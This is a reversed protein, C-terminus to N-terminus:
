RPPHIIRPNCHPASFAIRSVLEFMYKCARFGRCRPRLLRLDLVSSAFCLPATLNCSRTRIKVKAGPGSALPSCAFFHNLCKSIEYQLCCLVVCLCYLFRFAHRGKRRVLYVCSVHGAGIRMERGATVGRGGWWCLLCKQMKMNRQPKSAYEVAAVLRGMSGRPCFSVGDNEVETQREDDSERTGHVSRERVLFVYTAGAM